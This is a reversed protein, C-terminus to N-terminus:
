EQESRKGIIRRLWTPRARKQPDPADAEVSRGPPGHQALEWASWIAKISPALPYSAVPSAMIIDATLEGGTLVELADAVAKASGAKGRQMVRIQELIWDHGHVDMAAYTLQLPVERGDPLSLRAIGLRDDSPAM